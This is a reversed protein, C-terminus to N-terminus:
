DKGGGGEYMGKKGGERGGEKGEREKEERERKSEGERGGERVCRLEKELVNRSKKSCLSCRNM